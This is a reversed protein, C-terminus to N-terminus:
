LLITFRPGQLSSLVSRIRGLLLRPSNTWFRKPHKNSKPWNEIKLRPAFYRLV